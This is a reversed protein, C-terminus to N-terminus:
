KIHRAIEIPDGYIWANVELIEVTTKKKKMFQQFSVIANNIASLMNTASGNSIYTGMVGYSSYSIKVAYDKM